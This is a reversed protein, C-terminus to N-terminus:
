DYLRMNANEFNQVYAAKVICSSDGDDSVADSIKVIIDIKQHFRFSKLQEESFNYVVIYDLVDPETKRDFHKYISIFVSGSSYVDQIEGQIRYYKGISQSLAIKRTYSTTLVNCNSYIEDYVPPFYLYNYNIISEIDLDEFSLFESQNAMSINNYLIPDTEESANEKLDDITDGNEKKIDLMFKTSFFLNVIMILLIIFIFITNLLSFILGRDSQKEKSNEDVNSFTSTKSSNNCEDSNTQLNQQSIQSIQNTNLSSMQLFYGCRNCRIANDSNQTQCRPCIIM